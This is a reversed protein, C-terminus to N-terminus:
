FSPSIYIMMYSQWFLEMFPVEGGISCFEELASHTQGLELGFTVEGLQQGAYLVQVTLVNQM